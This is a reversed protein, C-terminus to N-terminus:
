VPMLHASTMKFTITLRLPSLVVLRVPHLYIQRHSVEPSVMYRQSPMTIWPTKDSDFNPMITFHQELYRREQRVDFQVTASFSKPQCQLSLIPLVRIRICSFVIHTDIPM